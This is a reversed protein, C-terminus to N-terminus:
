VSEIPPYFPVQLVFEGLALDHNVLVCVTKSNYIFHLMAARDEQIMLEGLKRSRFHINIFNQLDIVIIYINSFFQFNNVYHNM